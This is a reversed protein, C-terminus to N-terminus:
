CSILTKEKNSYISLEPYPNAKGAGFAEALVAVMSKCFAKDVIM